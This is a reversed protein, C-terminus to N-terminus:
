EKDNRLTVKATGYKPYIVPNTDIKHSGDKIALFTALGIGGGEREVVIDIDKIPEDLIADRVCGGVLFVHNEFATGKIYEQLRDILKIYKEEKFLEM